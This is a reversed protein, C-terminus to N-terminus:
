AHAGLPYLSLLFLFGLGRGKRIENHVVSGKGCRLPLNKIIFVVLSKIVKEQSAVYGTIQSNKTIYAAHTLESIETLHTPAECEKGRGRRRENHAGSTLHAGM